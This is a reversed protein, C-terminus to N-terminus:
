LYSMFQKLREESGNTEVFERICPQLKSFHSEIAQLSAIDSELDQGLRFVFPEAIFNPMGTVAIPLGRALLRSVKNPFTIVEISKIGSRYPIFGVFVNQLDLTELDSAPLFNVNSFRSIENISDSSCQIPGVFLISYESGRQLLGNALGAIFKVDLKNNIYGWFLITNRTTVLNPPTYRSDSWPYFLEAQCFESLENKLPLSVTLVVDSSKCTNILAWKLPSEYGGIARSWFDDNIITILRNSPFLDRLFFYDYNFNVIVDNREICLESMFSKIQKKEFLASVRHLLPHLRLKHHLLQRYRYLHIRAHGSDSTENKQGPYYPRQFFVVEHGADALLHALQHRLRPPEAWNTKSFFIFRM